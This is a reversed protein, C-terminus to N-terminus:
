VPLTATLAPVNCIPCLEAPATPAMVLPASPVPESVKFPPVREAPPVVGRLTNLVKVTAASTVRPSAVLVPLNVKLAAPLRPVATRVSVTELAISKVPIIEPMPPPIVLAPVSVSFKAPALVKVPPTVILAPFIFSPLSLTPLTPDMVEPGSPVPVNAKLPPAIFESLAVARLTSFGKVIEAAVVRPLAVLGPLNVKLAAPLRPAATRVSVMLLSTCNSPIRLPVPPPILLAPM